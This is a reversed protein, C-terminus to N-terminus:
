RAVGPLWTSGYLQPRACENNSRYLHLKKILSIGVCYGTAHVFPRQGVPSRAGRLRQGRPQGRLHVQLQCDAEELELNCGPQRLASAPSIVHPWGRVRLASLKLKPDRTLELLYM